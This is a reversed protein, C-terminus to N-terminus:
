NSSIILFSVEAINSGFTFKFQYRGPKLVLSSLQFAFPIEVSSGVPVNTPRTASAEGNILLKEDASPAPRGDEDVLELQWEISEGGLMSWPVEAMIAVAMPPTPSHTMSWGGGLIYLKGDVAQASDALIMTIAM